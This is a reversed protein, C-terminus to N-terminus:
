YHRIVDVYNRMYDIYNRNNIKLDYKNNRNFPMDDSTNQKSIKKSSM